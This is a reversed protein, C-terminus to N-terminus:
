CSGELAAEIKALHERRHIGRILTRPRVALIQEVLPKALSTRWGKASTDVAEAAIFEEIEKM